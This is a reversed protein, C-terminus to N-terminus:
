YLVTYVTGSGYEETVIIYEGCCSSSLFTNIINHMTATIKYETGGLGLKPLGMINSFDELIINKSLWTVIIQSNYFCCACTQCAKASKATAYYM